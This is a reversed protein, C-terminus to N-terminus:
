CASCDFSTFDSSWQAFLLAVGDGIFAVLAVLVVGLVEFPFAGHPPSADPAQCGSMAVILARGRMECARDVLAEDGLGM